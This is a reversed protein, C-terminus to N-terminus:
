NDTPVESFFISQTTNLREISQAKKSLLLTRKREFERIKEARKTILKNSIRAARKRKCTTRIVSLQTKITLVINFLITLSM